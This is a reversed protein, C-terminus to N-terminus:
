AASPPALAAFGPLNRVVTFAILLAFAWIRVARGTPAGLRWWGTTRGLWVLWSWGIVGVILPFIASCRLMLRMDGHAAAWVARTGGCLPCWLGTVAHFPCPPTVHHAFPNILSIGIVAIGAGAAAVVPGACARMDRLATTGPM